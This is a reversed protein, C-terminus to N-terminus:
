YKQELMELIQKFEKDTFELNDIKGQCVVIPIRLGSAIELINKKFLKIITPEVWAKSVQDYNEFDQYLSHNDFNASSRSLVKTLRRYISQKM